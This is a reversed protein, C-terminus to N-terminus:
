ASGMAGAKHSKEGVLPMPQHCIEGDASPHYQFILMKEFQCAGQM